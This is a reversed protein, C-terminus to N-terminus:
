QSPRQVIDLLRSLLGSASAVTEQFEQDDTMLRMWYDRLEQVSYPAERLKRSLDAASATLRQELESPDLLDIALAEHWLCEMSGIVQGMGSQQDVWAAVLDRANRHATAREAASTYYYDYLLRRIAPQIEHWPGVASQRVLSTGHIATWLEDAPWHLWQPSIALEGDFDGWDRLHSETFFRYPALARFSEKLAELLADAPEQVGPLLSRHAFLVDRIYSGTIQERVVASNLRSIEIWQEEWIWSLCRTLLVPVGASVQHVLAANRRLESPSLHRESRGALDHLAREAVELDFETLTLASMGPQRDAERWRNERRSAVILALRVERRATGVLGYLESLDSQLSAAVESDLLEASDLMVLHSRGSRAIERAIAFLDGPGSESTPRGFLRALLIRADQRLAPHEERLNVSRITWGDIATASTLAAGVRELFWTKGFQPPATVLWFHPGGSSTLGRLVLELEEERGRFASQANVGRPDPQGHDSDPRLAKVLLSLAAQKGGLSTMDIVDRSRAVSEAEGPAGRVDLMHVFTRAPRGAQQLDQELLM